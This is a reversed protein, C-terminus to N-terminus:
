INYTLGKQINVFKDNYMGICMHMTHNDSVELGAIMYDAIGVLQGIAKTLRSDPM